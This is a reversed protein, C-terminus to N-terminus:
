RWGGTSPSRARATSWAWAARPSDSSRSSTALVSRCRRRKPMRDDLGAERLFAFRRQLAQAHEPHDACAQEIARARLSDECALCAQMLEGVADLRDAESEAPDRDGGPSPPESSLSEPAPTM